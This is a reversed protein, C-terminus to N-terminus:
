GQQAIPAGAPKQAAQRATKAAERAEKAAQRKRKAALKSVLASVRALDDPHVYVDTRKLGIANVRSRYAAVRRANGNQAVIANGSDM